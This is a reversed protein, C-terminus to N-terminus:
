NKCGVPRPQSALGDMAIEIKKLASSPLQEMDKEASNGVIIRFM